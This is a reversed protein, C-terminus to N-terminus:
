TTRASGAELGSASERPEVELRARKWRAQVTAGGRRANGFTVKAGSREMLTKAIFFGLGMGEHGSPSDEGAPRSTVYPEGLRVIVDPAFGPGDDSVEVTIREADYRATVEVRSAAFDTANEVFSALAHVLEPVRRIEPPEAGDPGEVRTAVEPGAGRYPEVAEELLQPLSMRAHVLDGTEPRQALTALIERCRQAQQLLLRADEGVPDGEPAARAMEKAVVQITSLPTGLEHAAAAALGGLASLRQERALVAQTAALALEMRSAELAAQWAYGATFAMGVVVAAWVGARYVAPLAITEGPFWPLPFSWLALATTAAFGLFAVALGWRTPLTAAAVTVPAILMLAFPNELGGTLALLAALQVVDFGLQAAAEWDKALRRGPGAFSLFVNLWASAAIVGLCPGLPLEFRLGLAVVLIAASQGAVALWRLLVLTRLRLRGRRELPAEFDIPATERSGVAGGFAERIATLRALVM